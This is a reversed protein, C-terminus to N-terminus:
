PRSGASALRRTRALTTVGAGAGFALAVVGLNFPVAPVSDADGTLAPTGPATQISRAAEPTLSTRLSAIREDPGLVADSEIPVAELGLQRFADVSFRDSWQLHDGALRPADTVQFHVHQAVLGRLWWHIQEQGVYIQPLGAIRPQIVIADDTFLSAAGDVDYANISSELSVVPQASPEPAAFASATALLDVALAGGVALCVLGRARVTKV